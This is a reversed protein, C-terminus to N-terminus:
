QEVVNVRFRTGRADDKDALSLIGQQSVALFVNEHAVSRLTYYEGHRKAVFQAYKGVGGKHTLQSKANIALHWAPTHKVEFVINNSNNGVPRVVLHAWDGQAADAVIFGSPSVGINWGALQSRNTTEQFQVPMLTVTAGLFPLEDQQNKTAVIEEKAAPVQKKAAIREQKARIREEKARIREEKAVMREKIRKEKSAMREEKTMSSAHQAAPAAPAPVSPLQNEQKKPVKKPVEPAGGNPIKNLKIVLIGTKKAHFKRDMIPRVAPVEGRLRFHFPQPSGCLETKGEQMSVYLGTAVSKLSFCGKGKPAASSKFLTLGGGERGKGDM